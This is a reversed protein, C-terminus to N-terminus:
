ATKNIYLRYCQTYPSNNANPPDLLASVRYSTSIAALSTALMDRKAVNAAFFWNGTFAGGADTLNMFIVPNATETSNSAPGALNVDCVYWQAM